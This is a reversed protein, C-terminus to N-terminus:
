SGTGCLTSPSLLAAISYIKDEFGHERMVSESVYHFQLQLFPESAAHVPRAHLIRSGRFLCADGPNLHIRYIGTSADTVLFGSDRSLNVTLTYELHEFDFHPILYSDPGYRTLNFCRPLVKQGHLVRSVLPLFSLLLTAFFPDRANGYKKSNAAFWGESASFQSGEIKDIYGLAYEVFDASMLERVVHVDRPLEPDKLVLGFSSVHQSTRKWDHSGGTVRYSVRTLFLGVFFIAKGIAHRFASLCMRTKSEPSDNKITWHACSDVM